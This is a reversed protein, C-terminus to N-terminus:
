GIYKTLRGLLTQMNAEPPKHTHAAEREALHKEAYGKIFAVVDSINYLVDGMPGAEFVLSFGSLGIQDVTGLKTPAELHGNM